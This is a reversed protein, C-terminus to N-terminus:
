KALPKEPHLKNPNHNHKNSRQPERERINTATESDGRGGLSGGVGSGIDRDLAAKVAVHAAEVRVGPERM